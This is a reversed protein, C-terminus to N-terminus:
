RRRHVGVHNSVWGPRRDARRSGNGRARVRLDSALRARRGALEQRGRLAPGRRVGPDDGDPQRHGQGDPRARHWAASRGDGVEDPSGEDGERWQKAGYADGVAMRVISIPHTVGAVPAIGPIRRATRIIVKGDVGERILRNPSGVDDRGEPTVTAAKLGLGCERMAAAAEQVIGNKTERRKALSLDFRTLELEVGIVDPALVRLAEELLEQGTEDGELVVITREDRM